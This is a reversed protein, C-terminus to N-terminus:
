REVVERYKLLRGSTSFVATLVVTEASLRSTNKQVISVRNGKNRVVLEISAGGGSNHRLGLNRLNGAQDFRAGGDFLANCFGPLREQSIYVRDDRMALDCRTNRLTLLASALRDAQEKLLHAKEPRASIM